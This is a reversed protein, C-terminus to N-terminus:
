KVTRHIRHTRHTRYSKCAKVRCNQLNLLLDWVRCFKDMGWMVKCFNYIAGTCHSLRAPILSRNWQFGAFRSRISTIRSKPFAKGIYSISEEWVLSDSYKEDELKKYQLGPRRISAAKRNSLSGGKSQDSWFLDSRLINLVTVTSSPRDAPRRPNATLWCLLSTSVALPNNSTDLSRPHVKAHKWLGWRIVATVVDDHAIANCQAAVIPTPPAKERNQKRYSVITTKCRLTYLHWWYPHAVIYTNVGARRIGISTVVTTYVHEATWPGVFSM